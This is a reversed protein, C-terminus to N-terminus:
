IEIPLYSTIRWGKEWNVTGNPNGYAGDFIKNKYIVVWHWNYKTYPFTLKGIALKPKHKLRKLRNPCKFGLKKLAKALEKTKTHKDNKLIKIVKNVSCKAIVAVAIQGCIYQDSPQKIWKYM